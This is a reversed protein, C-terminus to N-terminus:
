NSTETTWTDCDYGKSTCYQYCWNKWAKENTLKKVGMLYEKVANQNAHEDSQCFAFNRDNIDTFTVSGDRNYDRAGDAFKGSANNDMQCMTDFLYRDTDTNSRNWLTQNFHANSTCTIKNKTTCEGYDDGQAKCSFELPEALESFVTLAPYTFKAVCRGLSTHLPDSESADYVITIDSAKVAVALTNDDKITPCTKCAALGTEDSYTTGTCAIKNTGDCYYGKPCLQYDGNDTKYYADGGTIDSDTLIAATWKSM